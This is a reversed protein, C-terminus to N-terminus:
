FKSQLKDELLVEHLQSVRSTVTPVSAAAALELRLFEALVGRWSSGVRSWVLPHQIFYRQGLAGDSVM